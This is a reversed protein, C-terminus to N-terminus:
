VRGQQCSCGLYMCIGCYQLVGRLSVFRLLDFLISVNFFSRFRARKGYRPTLGTARGSAETTRRTRTPVRRWCSPSLKRTAQTRPTTCRQVKARGSFLSRTALDYAKALLQALRGYDCKPCPRCGCGICVDTADKLPSLIAVLVLTDGRQENGGNLSLLLFVRDDESGLRRSRHTSFCRVLVDTASVVAGATASAGVGLVIGVGAVVVQVIM